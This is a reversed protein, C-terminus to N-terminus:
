AIGLELIVEKQLMCIQRGFRKKTELGLQVEGKERTLSSIIAVSCILQRINRKIDSYM